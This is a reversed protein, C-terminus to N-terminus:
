KDEISKHVAPSFRFESVSEIHSDLFYAVDAINSFRRINGTKHAKSFLLGLINRVHFKIRSAWIALFYILIKYANSESNEKFAKIIRGRYGSTGDFVLCSAYLYDYNFTELESNMGMATLSKIVSEAYITKGSWYFPVWQNWVEAANSPLQNVESIEGYHEGQAGRGGASAIGQGSTILPLDVFVYSTLYNTLAIANAIDPSPGPSYVGTHAHVKKLIERKVVGHYVRPLDLIQTGGLKTVKAALKSADIYKINGSYSETRLVGSSSSKYLRPKVDPWIYSAKNPLVAEYGLTSWKECYEVLYKSFIDDDGIMTIWEGSAKSIALDCNQTQSLQHDLKYYHIRSDSYQLLDAKINQSSDEDDSNDQIILEIKSSTISIFYRLLYDLYFYRNKTPVVVSLIISM